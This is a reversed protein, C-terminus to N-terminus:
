PCKGAAQIVMVRVRNHRGPGAAEVHIDGRGVRGARGRGRPGTRGAPVKAQWDHFAQRSVRPGRAPWPSRSARLGRGGPLSGDIAPQHLHRAGAAHVHSSRRCPWSASALVTPRKGCWCDHEPADTAFDSALTATSSDAPAVKTADDRRSRRALVAVAFECAIVSPRRMGQKPSSYAVKSVPLRCVPHRRTGLRGAGEEGDEAM